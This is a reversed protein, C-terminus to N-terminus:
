TPQVIIPVCNQLESRLKVLSPQVKKQSMTEVSEDSFDSDDDDEFFENIGTVGDTKDNYM